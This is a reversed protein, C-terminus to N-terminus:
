NNGVYHKGKENREWYLVLRCAVDQLVRYASLYQILCMRSSELHETHFPKACEPRVWNGDEDRIILHGTANYTKHFLRLENQLADWEFDMMRAITDRYKKAM